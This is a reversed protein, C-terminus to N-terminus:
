WYFQLSNLYRTSRHLIWCLVLLQHLSSFCEPDAVTVKTFQSNSHKGKFLLFELTLDLHFDVHIETGGYWAVFYWQQLFISVLLFLTSMTIYFHQIMTSMCGGFNRWNTRRLSFKRQYSRSMILLVASECIWHFEFVLLCYNLLGKIVEASQTNIIERINIQRFERIQIILSHFRQNVVATVGM